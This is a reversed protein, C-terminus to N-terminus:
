EIIIDPALRQENEEFLKRRLKSAIQHYAVASSDQPCSAAIPAGADSTERIAIELPIQMWSM